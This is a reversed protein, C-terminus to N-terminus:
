AAEPAGRLENIWRELDVSRVRRSRGITVSPIEGTSVLLYVKSRSLGLRRAAEEVRLLAPAPAAETTSM